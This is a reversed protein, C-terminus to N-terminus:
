GLCKIHKEHPVRLVNPDDPCATSRSRWAIAASKAMGPLPRVVPALSRVAQCLSRIQYLLTNRSVSWEETARRGREVCGRRQSRDATAMMRVVVVRKARPEIEATEAATSIEVM